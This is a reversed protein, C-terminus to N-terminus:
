NGVNPGETSKAAVKSRGPALLRKMLAYSRLQAANKLAHQRAEGPPLQEAQSIRAAAREELQDATLFVAKKRNRMLHGKSERETVVNLTAAFIPGYGDAANRLRNAKKLAEEKQLRRCIALQLL